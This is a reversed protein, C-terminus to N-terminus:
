QPYPFAVILALIVRSPDSCLMSPLMCLSAPFSLHLFISSVYLISPPIICLVIQLLLDIYWFTGPANKPSVEPAPKNSTNLSSSSVSSSLNSSSGGLDDNDNDDNYRIPFFSFDLLNVLISICVPVCPLVFLSLSLYTVPLCINYSVYVYGEEQHHHEVRWRTSKRCRTISCSSSQTQRGEWESFHVALNLIVNRPTDPVPM